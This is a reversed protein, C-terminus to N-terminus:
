LVNEATLEFYSELGAEISPMMKVRISTLSSNSPRKASFIHSTVPRVRANEIGSIQAARLAFEYWTISGEGALHVIGKTGDMLLDLSAQVLHPVYTPSVVQDYCAEVREGEQLSKLIRTIFNHEDWPGYFASTRIMLADPYHQTLFTEARQKSQGYVNIPCSSDTETYATGKNGNFVMDSSFCVLRIEKAACIVALNKVGLSNERMCQQRNNEAKDVDVYGAANIIAWPQYMEAMAEISELNGIDAEARGLLIYPLHRQGCIRAFAQGLTGTKGIIVIPRGSDAAEKPESSGADVLYREQRQWWGKGSYLNADRHDDNATAKIAQGLATLRPNGARMDFAGTEYEFPTTTLLKNWGFSGLVSWATVAMIPIYEERLRSAIGNVQNWWKVQEERSCYLFVETIAIPISYRTWVESLLHQLGSPGTMEVRVAEVDAYAHISNHGHTHVPYRTLDDHLYRESTLYYNAGIINPPCPNDTFFLMTEKTIGLRMFYEWLPHGADFKGSLIDFTLWRRENEFRAQYDLLGTSYTKGLDETQLLRAAPNVTRILQMALVTAKLENLLIRIFSVDNKKHPYWHGYLGSFRATTLPENIPTYFEIEPFQLAVQHAYLAFKEPFDERLLDTYRPGSGHHLLGAIPCVCAEKLRALQSVVPKWDIPSNEVPQLKEWLIPFRMRKIGLRLIEDLCAPDTDFGTLACQDHYDDGTRNITCEVGGWIEPLRNVSQIM